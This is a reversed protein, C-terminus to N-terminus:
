NTLFYAIKTAKMANNIKNETADGFKRVTFFKMLTALCAEMDPTADTPIKNTSSRPPISIDIPDDTESTHTSQAINM